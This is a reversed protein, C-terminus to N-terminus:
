SVCVKIGHKVRKDKMCQKFSLRGKFPIKAEDVTISEGLNYEQEFNSTVIDLLKRM